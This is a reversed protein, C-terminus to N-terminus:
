NLLGAVALAALPCIELLFVKDFVGFHNKNSLAPLFALILLILIVIPVWVARIKPELVIM